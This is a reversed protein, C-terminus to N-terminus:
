RHWDDASRSRQRRERARAAFDRPDRCEDRGNGRRREGAIRGAFRGDARAHRISGDNMECRMSDDAVVIRQRRKQRQTSRRQGRGIDVTESEV